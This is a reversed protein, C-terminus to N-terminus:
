GMLSKPIGGSECRLSVARAGIGRITYNVGGFNTATYSFNPVVYQLDAASDVQLAELSDNNFATVALPVDQLPQARRQATAIIQESAKEAQTSQAL